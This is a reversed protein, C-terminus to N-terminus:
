WSLDLVMMDNIRGLRFVAENEDRPTKWDSNEGSALEDVCFRGVDNSFDLILENQTLTRLEDSIMLKEEFDAEHTQKFAQRM